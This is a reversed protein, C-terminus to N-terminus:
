AGPCVLTLADLEAWNEALLDPVINIVVVDIFNSFAFM